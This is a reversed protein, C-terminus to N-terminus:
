KNKSRIWLIIFTSSHKMNDVVKVHM